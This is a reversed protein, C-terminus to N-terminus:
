AVLRSASSKSIDHNGTIPLFLKPRNQRYSNTMKLYFKLARMPCLLRDLHERKCKWALNPIATPDPWISSLQNKALFGTQLILSVSGDSQNFRLHNSNMALTHLESCKKATALILLFATEIMVHLKSAKHIPEYPAKQLCILVWSFDWKPTLSRQVSQQLEFSRIILESFVPNSGIRNGSKFKHTNSTM